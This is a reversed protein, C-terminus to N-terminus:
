RINPLPRGTNEKKCKKKAEAHYGALEIEYRLIKRLRVFARRMVFVDMWELFAHSNIPRCASDESVKM